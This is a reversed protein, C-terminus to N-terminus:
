DLKCVEKAPLVFEIEVNKSANKLATLVNELTELWNIGTIPRQLSDVVGFSNNCVRCNGGQFFNGLRSIPVEIVAGCTAKKCVVRVTELESLLFFRLLKDSMEM